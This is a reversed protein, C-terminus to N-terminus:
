RREVARPIRGEIGKARRATAVLREPLPPLTGRSGHGKVRKRAQCLLGLLQVQRVGEHPADEVAEERLAEAGVIERAHRCEDGRALANHADHSIRAEGQETCPGRAQVILEHRDRRRPGTLRGVDLRVLVARRSDRRHAVDLM